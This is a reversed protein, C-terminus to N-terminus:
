ERTRHIQASNRNSPGLFPKGVINHHAKGLVVGFPRPYALRRRDSRYRAIIITEPEDDIADAVAAIPPFHRDKHNFIIGLVARIMDINAPRHAEYDARVAAAAGHVARM